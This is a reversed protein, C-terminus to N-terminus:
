TPDYNVIVSMDTLDSVDYVPNGFVDVQVLNHCSTLSTINSIDNYDMIVFNLQSLGKLPYVSTLKNYSGDITVLSCSKDWSPITSVENHSFYFYTLKVMPSLASIDTLQNYSLNLYEMATCASLVDVETLLNNSVDLSSLVTANQFAPLTDLQNYSAVLKTLSTCTMLPTISKLSNYSVDLEQLNQLSSLPSLNTLANNKLNLTTLQDMFSLPSLDRIANGSLDLTVLRLANSLEEINSLSCNPLTLHQLNPMTGIRSLDESSLPCNRITLETLHPLSSLFQFDDLSVDEVVLTELYTLKGIDTPDTVDKPVSLSTITWLDNTFLQKDASVNLIERFLADLIPDSITVEEIIGGITYGFYAPESVLGNEGVCVAYIANEGGVLSIGEQYVDKNVSPFSGDQSVYLIDSPAKEITVTLYQSYYGPKHSATPTSPRLADLQARIEPDAVNALMNTADLLKDQEVYTKCLAIYLEVSPNETIANSLAVEAQTYNGQAKFREALEIIVEHDNGSHLYAQNYFWTATSHDGQNEFFHAGALLLDQAFGRDYSFLYWVISCIVIVSLIIPFFRKITRKM